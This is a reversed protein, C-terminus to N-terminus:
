LDLADYQIKHMHLAFDTLIQEYKCYETFINDFEVDQALAQLVSSTSVNHYESPNLIMGGLSSANSTESGNIIKDRNPTYRDFVETVNRRVDKASKSSGLVHRLIGMSGIMDETMGVIANYKVLNEVMMHVKAEIREVKDTKNKTNRKFAHVIEQDPM